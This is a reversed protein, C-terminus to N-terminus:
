KKLIFLSPNYYKTYAKNFDKINAKIGKSIFTDVKHKKVIKRVIPLTIWFIDAIEDLSRYNRTM